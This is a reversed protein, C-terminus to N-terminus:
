GVRRLPFDQLLLAIAQDLETQALNDLPQGARAEYLLREDFGDFVRLSFGDGEQPGPLGYCLALDGEQERYRYGKADMAKHVANDLRQGFAAQEPTLSGRVSFTAPAAAPPTDGGGEATPALSAGLLMALLPLSQRPPLM